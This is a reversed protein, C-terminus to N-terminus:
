GPWRAAHTTNTAAPSTSQVDAPQHPVPRVRLRRQSKPLSSLLPSMQSQRRTWMSTAIQFLTTTLSVPDARPRRQNVARPQPNPPVTAPRSLALALPTPSHTQAPPLAARSPQSAPSTLPQNVPAAQNLPAQHTAPSSPPLSSATTPGAHKQSPSAQRNTLFPSGYPINNSNNSKSCSTLLILTVSLLLFNKMTALILPIERLPAFDPM